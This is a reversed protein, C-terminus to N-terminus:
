NSSKIYNNALTDLYKYFTPECGKVPEISVVFGDKKSYSFIVNEITSFGSMHSLSYIEFELNDIIEKNNGLNLFVDLKLQEERQTNFFKFLLYYNENLVFTNEGLYEKLRENNPTLCQVGFSRSKASLDAKMSFFRNIRKIRTRILSINNDERVPFQYKFFM